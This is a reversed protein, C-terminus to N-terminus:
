RVHLVKGNELRYTGITHHRALSCNICVSEKNGKGNNWIVIYPWYYPSERSDAQGKEFFVVSVERAEEDGVQREFIRDLRGEKLDEIDMRLFRRKTQLVHLEDEVANLQELTEKAIAKILDVQQNRLGREEENFVKNEV